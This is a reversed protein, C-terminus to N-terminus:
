WDYWSGDAEPKMWTFSYWFWRDDSTSPATCTYTTRGASLTGESEIRLVTPDQQMIERTISTGGAFCNVAEARYPGDMLTLQLSQAEADADLVGSEPDTAQVPLPRARAKLAFDEVGAFGVAMPFRPLAAFDHSYHAVAGSQQGLGVFDLERLLDRTAPSSEGYPWAFIPPPDDLKDELVDQADVIESEMRELWDDRDEDPRPRAMHDHSVSHNAITVDADDLERLEDWDMYIAHRDVADTAVFVTFPWDREQMQPFVEDYVSQYADDFTLAVTKDPIDGGNQLADLLRPLDWVHFDNEELYELHARFTDPKVSTSEPTDEAVHHYTFIAATGAQTVELSRDDENAAASTWPLLAATIFGLAVGRM